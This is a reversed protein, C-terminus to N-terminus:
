SRFVTDPQDVPPRIEGLKDQSHGNAANAPTQQARPEPDSAPPSMVADLERQAQRLRQVAASGFLRVLTSEQAHLTTQASVASPRPTKLKLVPRSMPISAGGPTQTSNGVGTRSRTSDDYQHRKLVDQAM